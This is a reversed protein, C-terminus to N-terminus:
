DYRDGGSVRAHVTARLTSRLQILHAGFVVFFSRCDGFPCHLRLDGGGLLCALNSGARCIHLTALMMIEFPGPRQAADHHLTKALLRYM